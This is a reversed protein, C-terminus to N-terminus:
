KLGLAIRWEESAEKIMNKKSYALGLGFHALKHDPVMHIIRKFENMAVDINGSNLNPNELFNISNAEGAIKTVYEEDFDETRIRSISWGEKTIDIDKTIYGKKRCIEYLETGKLPTTISFCAWDLKIERVLDLTKNMEEKTEGPNGIMFFSKVKIGIEKADKVVQKAREINVPKKLIESLVRQSGSEIAFTLSNCGSQKIKKLVDRDLTYIATGNPTTWSLDWKNSIIGDLIAITRKKNATFNDDVIHLENISYKDILYKIEDLVNEATRARYNKGVTLRISCYICSAPCGRSTLIPIWRDRISEGIPLNVEWYKEMPLLHWAPFPLTDLNEIYRTKPIIEIKDKIKLGIGDLESLKLDGKIYNMLELFSQEGEGIIIYDIDKEKLVEGQVITPHIGGMITICNPNVKKAIRCINKADNYKISVPCSVGVVDPKLEKIKKEIEIDPLGFKVFKDDIPKGHVYSINEIITDLITVNYGAKELVAAIYALGIPPYASPRTKEAVEKKLTRPPEILM